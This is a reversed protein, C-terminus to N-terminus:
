EFRFLRSAHTERSNESKQLELTMSYADGTAGSIIPLISPEGNTNM